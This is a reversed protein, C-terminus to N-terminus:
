PIRHMNLALATAFMSALRRSPASVVIEVYHFGALVVSGVLLVKRNKAISTATLDSSLYYILRDFDISFIVSAIPNSATRRLECSSM